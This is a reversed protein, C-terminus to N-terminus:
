MCSRRPTTDISSVVLRFPVPISDASLAFNGDADATTACVNMSDLTQLAVTAMAVANHGSDVVRGRVTQAESRVFSM